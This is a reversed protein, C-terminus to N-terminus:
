SKQKEFTYKLINSIKKVQGKRSYDESNITNCNIMKNKKFESEFEWLKHYLDEKDKLIIGSNTKQILDEQLTNSINKNDKISYYKKKLEKSEEDNSFCLLIKRELGIYDYIKTGMYSYYNFLLLLNNKALKELLNEYPLKTHIKVHNKISPFKSSILNNIEDTKNIGYFNILLANGKKVFENVTFLFGEIPNWDYITGALAISLCKNTQKIKKAREIFESEYGNSIVYIKKTTLESIQAKIFESVTIICTSTNVIKKEYYSSWIKLLINKKSSDHSWPDRYDAVWPIEHKKSLKSAYHFLVFQDGSALIMDVKNYKLFKNASNYIEIKPGIPLIFQIFEYYASIIKRLYKFKQNGYKLLIKNALNPKYPAKLITGLNKNEIETYKSKSPAVYDLENNYLNDWQRTVVIPNINNIKLHKYWSYPRQGAVSIYPPFEYSIILLNLNSKM